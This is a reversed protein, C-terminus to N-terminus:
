SVLLSTTPWWGSSLSTTPICLSSLAMFIPDSIYSPGYLLLVNGTMHFTTARLRIIAKPHMPSLMNRAKRMLNALFLVLVLLMGILTYFSSRALILDEGFHPVRFAKGQIHRFSGLSRWEMDLCCKKKVICLSSPLLISINSMFETTIVYDSSAGWLTFM